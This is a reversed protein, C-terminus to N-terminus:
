PNAYDIPVRSGSPVEIHTPALRDLARQQDWPLLTKLASELDIRSLHDKRSVRDLFPALWDALTALLAADSLDPWSEDLQRLFAVRERWNALDGTWPLAALGLRRVGELM